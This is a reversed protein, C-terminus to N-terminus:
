VLVISLNTHFVDLKLGKFINNEKLDVYKSVGFIETHSVKRLHKLEFPYIDPYLVQTVHKNAIFDDDVSLLSIESFNPHQQFYNFYRFHIFFSLILFSM